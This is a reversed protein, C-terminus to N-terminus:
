NNITENHLKKAADTYKDLASKKTKNDSFIVKREVPPDGDPSDALQTMLELMQAIVEGQKKITNEQKGFAIKQAEAQSEMGQKYTALEDQIAKTVLEKVQETLPSPAPTEEEMVQEDKPTIVTILGDVTTFKSGDELTYEGNAIPTDGQVVQGGVEMKDITIKTGDELTYETVEFEGPDVVETIKGTSDVTVNTGDM